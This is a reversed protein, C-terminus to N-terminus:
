AAYAHWIFFGVLLLACLLSTGTLLNLYKPIHMEERKAPLVLCIIWAVLFFALALISKGLWHHTFTSTLWAKLPAQLEALITVVTLGVMTLSASLSASTQTHPKSFIAM